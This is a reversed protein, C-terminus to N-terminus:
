NWIRLEVEIPNQAYYITSGKQYVGSIYRGDKILFRQYRTQNCDNTYVSDWKASVSGNCYHCLNNGSRMCELGTGEPSKIILEFGYNKPIATDLYEKALAQACDPRNISWFAAISDIVSMNDDWISCNGFSYLNGDNAGIYIRGNVVAPSSYIPLPQAPNIPNTIKYSWLVSGTKNVVTINGGSTALIISDNAVVPSSYIPDNTLIISQCM